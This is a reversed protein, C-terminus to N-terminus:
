ISLKEAIEESIGKLKVHSQFNKILQSHEVKSMARLNLKNMLTEREALLLILPNITTYEITKTVTMTSLYQQFPTTHFGSSDVLNALANFLQEDSVKEDDEWDKLFAFNQKAQQGLCIRKLIAKDYDALMSRNWSAGGSLHHLRLEEGFKTCSEKTLVSPYKLAKLSVMTNSTKQVKTTGVTGTWQNLSRMVDAQITLFCQPFKTSIWNRDLATMMKYDNAFAKWFRDVMSTREHLDVEKSHNWFTLLEEMNFTGNKVKDHIRYYGEVDAEELRTMIDNDYDIENDEEEFINRLMRENYVLERVSSERRKRNESNNASMVPSPPEWLNASDRVPSASSLDGDGSM